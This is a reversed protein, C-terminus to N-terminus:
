LSCRTELTSSEEVPITGLIVKSGQVFLFSAIFLVAIIAIVKVIFLLIDELFDM